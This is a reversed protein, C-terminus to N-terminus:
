KKIIKEISSGNETTVKLLYMGSQLNEINLIVENSNQSLSQIIRGNIDVIEISTIISSTNINLINSAPNPFIKIEANDFKANALTSVFETQFTNTVIAPNFDFYINATNPIIDGIAYGATPKVQFTIYGKGTETSAISPPLNIGNFKWSLNNGTRELIYPASADIMRVTTADLQSDLIDDVKINIANGTGTNEFRITYTLYDSSSFTSFIIKEGHSEIKDNPDYSGRIDQTLTSSNDLPHIDGSPLTITATNTVLDGLSVTPIVPTNISVYIYRVENRLLNTFDYTFGNTIPTSGSVPNITVNSGHNFIVTGSVITSTGKNEYRIKNSYSFGPVPGNYATLSVSLDNFPIEIIPFNYTTVGSGTAVHVGSYVVTLPFHASVFAPNITYSLDYANTPNTEYIIFMGSSDTINRIIGDSNLIYHFEGNTFNPEGADQINNSNLDNFANMKIAETIGLSTTITTAISILASSSDFGTLLADETISGAMIDALTLIHVGTFTTTDTTGTTLLPIATGSISMSSDTVSVNTFDGLSSITFQYNIVDGMNIFGDANFDNYTGTMNLTLSPLVEITVPVTSSIIPDNVVYNAIYTGPMVNSAVTITNYDFDIGVPFSEVFYGSGGGSSGFAVGCFLDNEYITDVITTTGAYVSYYDAVPEPWGIITVTIIGSDFVASDSSKTLTYNLTYVGCSGAGGTCTFNGSSDVYFISSSSYFNIIVDEPNTILTGDLTDNTLINQPGSGGGYFTSEFTDDGVVIQAYNSSNFLLGVLLIIFHTIKKM